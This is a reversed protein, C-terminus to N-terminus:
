IWCLVWILRVVNYVNVYVYLNYNTIKLVVHSYFQFWRLFSCFRCICNPATYFKYFNIIKYNNYVQTSYFLRRLSNHMKQLFLRLYLKFNILVRSLFFNLMSKSGVFFLLFAYSITVHFRWLFYESNSYRKFSFIIDSLDDRINVVIKIMVAIYCDKFSELFNVLFIKDNISFNIIIYNPIYNVYSSFSWYFIQCAALSILIYLSNLIM